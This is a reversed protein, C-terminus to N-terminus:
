LSVQLLVSKYSLLKIGPLKGSQKRFSRLVKPTKPQIAGFGKQRAIGGAGM